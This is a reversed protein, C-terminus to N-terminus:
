NKGGKKKPRKPTPTAPEDDQGFVYTDLIYTFKEIMKQRMDSKLVTEGTQAARLNREAKEKERTCQEVNATGLSNVWAASAENYKALAEDKNITTPLSRLESLWKSYNTNGNTGITKLNPDIANDSDGDVNWCDLTQLALRMVNRHTGHLSARLERPRKRSSPTTPEDEDADDEDADDEDDDDDDIQM